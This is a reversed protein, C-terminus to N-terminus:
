ETYDKNGILKILKTANKIDNTILLNRPSDELFYIYFFIFIIFLIYFKSIGLFFDNSNLNFNQIYELSPIYIKCILLFFIWGLQSFFWVSNLMFSRFKKPLYEALINTHITNLIGVCVKIMISSISFVYVNKVYSMLFHFIFIFFLCFYISYVRSIKSAIIVAFFSGLGIGLYNLGLIFQMLFDSLKFYDEIPQLLYFLFSSYFGFIFSKICTLLFIIITKKNYGQTEIIFDINFNHKYKKTTKPVLYSFENKHPNQTQSSNLLYLINEIDNHIQEEDTYQNYNNTNDYSSSSEYITNKNEFTM